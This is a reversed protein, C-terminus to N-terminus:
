NILSINSQLRAIEKGDSVTNWTILCKTATTDCYITLLSNINLDTYSGPLVVTDPFTKEWIQEKYIDNPTDTTYYYIRVISQKLTGGTYNQADLRCLLDRVNIYYSGKQRTIVQLRMTSIYPLNSIYKSIYVTEINEKYRISKFGYIDKIFVHLWLQGGVIGGLNAEDVSWIVTQTEINIPIEKIAYTDLPNNNARLTLLLTPSPNAGITKFVDKLVLGGDNVAQPINVTCSVGQNLIVTAPFSISFMPTNANHSYGEFDLIRNWDVDSRPPEYQWINDKISPNVLYDSTPILFGCYGRQSRWWEDKYNISDNTDSTFYADSQSGEINNLRVPKKKSLTNIKNHSNGCIYTLDFNGNYMDVGMVYYPDSVNVPASIIGNSYSM